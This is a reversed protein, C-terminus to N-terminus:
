SGQLYNKFIKGVMTSSKLHMKTVEPLFNESIVLINGFGQFFGPIEVESFVPWGALRVCDNDKTQCPNTFINYKLILDPFINDKEYM